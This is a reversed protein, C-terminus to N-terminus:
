YEAPITINVCESKFTTYITYILVSLCLTGILYLLQIGLSSIPLFISSTLMILILMSTWVSLIGKTKGLRDTIQKPIKSASTNYYITERDEDIQIQIDVSEFNEIQSKKNKMSIDHVYTETTDPYEIELFTIHAVSNDTGYDQLFKKYSKSDLHKRINITTISNWPTKLLFLYRSEGKSTLICDATIVNSICCEVTEKNTKSTHSNRDEASYKHKPKQITQAMNTALKYSAIYNHM